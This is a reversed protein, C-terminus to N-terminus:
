VKLLGVSSFTCAITSRLFKVYFMRVVRVFTTTL